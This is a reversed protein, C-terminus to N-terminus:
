ALDAIQEKLQSITQELELSQARKKEIVAPAAKAVFGENSLTRTVSALDKEAKALEKELRKAEAELDVLGGLAVFIELKGDAVSVSGAPKDQHAGLALQDVHGVSCIFGRQAELVAADDASSRVAVDLEAKPSLRYRARTSRVASVVRKALDFDHEARDNVFSSFDSPEPWDAVMLFRADHADLGSAPLADWVSETVFPMAPHLLRMSTDLVFVLNRQCALRDAGESQLRVKSLEIYWDCFENWFFSYLARTMAGFDFVEYADDVAKVLKALRSFV